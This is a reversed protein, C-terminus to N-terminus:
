DENLAAERKERNLKAKAMRRQQKAIRAARKKQLRNEAWYRDRAPKNKSKKGKGM